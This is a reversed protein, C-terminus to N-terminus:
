IREILVNITNTSLATNLTGASASLPVVGGAVGDDAPSRLEFLPEELESECTGLPVFTTTKSEEPFLTGSPECAACSIMLLPSGIQHGDVTDAGFSLPSLPQVSGALLRARKILSIPVAPYM